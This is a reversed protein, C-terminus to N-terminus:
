SDKLEQNGNITVIEACSNHIVSSNDKMRKVRRRATWDIYRQFTKSEGKDGGKAKEEEETM